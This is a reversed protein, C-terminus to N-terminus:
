PRTRSPAAHIVVVEVRALEHGKSVEHDPEKAQEATNASAGAADSGVRPSRCDSPEACQDARRTV